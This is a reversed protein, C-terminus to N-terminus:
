GGGAPPFFVVEDGDKLRTDLNELFEIDRGNVLIKHYKKLHTTKSEILRESFEPKYKVSIFDILQAVTTAPTEFELRNFGLIERLSAFVQIAIRPM